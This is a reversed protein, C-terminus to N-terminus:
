EEGNRGPIPEYDREEPNNQRERKRKIVCGITTSTVTFVLAFSGIGIGIWAIDTRCWPETECQEGQYHVDLKGCTEKCHCQLTETNCVGKSLGSCHPEATALCNFVVQVSVATSNSMHIKSRPCHTTAQFRFTCKQENLKSTIASSNWVFQKKELDFQMHTNSLAAAWKKCEVPGSTTVQILLYRKAAKNICCTANEYSPDNLCTINQLRCTVNSSVPVIHSRGQLNFSSTCDFDSDTVNIYKVHQVYAAYNTTDISVPHSNPNCSLLSNYNNIAIAGMEPNEKLENSIPSIAIRLVVTVKSNSTGASSNSPCCPMGDKYTLELVSDDNKWAPQPVVRTDVDFCFMRDDARIYDAIIVQSKSNCKLSTTDPDCGHIIDNTFNLRVYRVLHTQAESNTVQM